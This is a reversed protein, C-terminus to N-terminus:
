GGGAMQLLTVQDGDQLICSLDNWGMWEHGNRVIQFWLNDWVSRGYTKRLHDLLHGLTNGEFELDIEKGGVARQAESFGLLKIRIKM